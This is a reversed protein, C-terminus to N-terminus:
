RDEEGEILLWSNLRWYPVRVRVEGRDAERVTEFGKCVTLLPLTM